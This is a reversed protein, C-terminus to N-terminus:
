GGQNTQTDQPEQTNQPEQTDKKKKKNRPRNRIFIGIEELMQLNGAFAVKSTAVLADVWAKLKKFSKDRQEILSQCEGKLKEYEARLNQYNTVGDVDTQIKETSFGFPDIKPLIEPKAATTYFNLAQEIMGTMTRDRKGPLGLAASTEPDDHLERRLRTVHGSYTVAVQDFAKKLETYKAIREQRKELYTRNLNLTETRFGRGEEYRADNYGYEQLPVTIHPVKPLNDFMVRTTDLYKTYYTSSFSM